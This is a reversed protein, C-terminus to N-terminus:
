NHKDVELLLASAMARGPQFTLGRQSNYNKVHKKLQGIM